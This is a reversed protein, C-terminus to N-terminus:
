LGRTCEESLSTTSLTLGNDLCVKVILNLLKDSISIIKIIAAVHFIGGVVEFVM